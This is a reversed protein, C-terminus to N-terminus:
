LGNARLARVTNVNTASGSGATSYQVNRPNAISFVQTGPNGGSSIGRGPTTPTGYSCVGNVSVGGRICRGDVNMQCIGAEAPANDDPDACPIYAQEYFTNYSSSM